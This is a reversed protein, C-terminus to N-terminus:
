KIFGIVFCDCFSHTLQLTIAGKAMIASAIEVADNKSPMSPPFDNISCASSLPINIVDLKSITLTPPPPPVFEM